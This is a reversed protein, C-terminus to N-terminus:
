IQSLSTVGNATKNGTSPIALLNTLEPWNLRSFFYANAFTTLTINKSVGIDYGLGAGINPKILNDTINSLPTEATNAFYSVGPSINLFLGKKIPNGKKSFTPCDCDGKFDLFYIHTNLQFRLTKNKFTGLDIIENEFLAGGIEPVIAIRYNKSSFEYNLSLFYSNGPLDYTTSNNLDTIAWGAANNLTGGVSVGIQAISTLPSLFIFFFCWNKIIYM